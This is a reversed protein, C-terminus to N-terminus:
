RVGCVFFLEVYATQFQPTHQVTPNKTNFQPIKPASSTHDKHPVSTNFQPPRHPVSSYEKLCTRSIARFHEITIKM